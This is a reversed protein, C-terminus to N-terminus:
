LRKGWYLGNGYTAWPWWPKFLRFGCSILSNASPYNTRETDTVAWALGMARAKRLRVRILRKQLGHGRHEFAVAVRCLYGTAHYHKSRYLGAFAIMEGDCHVLWWRGDTMSPVSTRGGKFMEVHLRRMDAIDARSTARRIPYDTTM